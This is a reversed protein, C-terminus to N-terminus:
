RQIRDEPALEGTAAAPEAASAQPTVTTKTVTEVIPALPQPEDQNMNARVGSRSADLSVNLGTVAVLNVLCLFGALMMGGGLWNLQLEQHTVAWPGLWIVLGFGVILLTNAMAGGVQAWAKVTAAEMLAAWVRGILVVPWNFWTM